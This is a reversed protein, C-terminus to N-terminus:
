CASIGTMRTLIAAKINLFLKDKVPSQPSWRILEIVTRHLVEEGTQLYVQERILEAIEFDRHANTVQDEPYLPPAGSAPLLETVLADWAPDPGARPKGRGRRVGRRPGEPIGVGPSSLDAKTQPVPDRPVPSGPARRVGAPGRRRSGPFSGRCAGGMSERSPMERGDTLEDVLRSASDQLIRPTVFVVQGGPRHVIGQVPHRTTQPKGPTVISVTRRPM